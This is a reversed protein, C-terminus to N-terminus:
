RSHDSIMEGGKEPSNVADGLVNPDLMICSAFSHRLCRISYNTRLERERGVPNERSPRYVTPSSSFLQRSRSSNCFVNM